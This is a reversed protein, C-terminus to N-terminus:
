PPEGRRGARVLRRAQGGLRGRVAPRAGPRPGGPRPGTRVGLQDLTAPQWGVADLVPITAAPRAPPRTDDRASAPRRTALGLAVLVDDASCVPARGEALLGNTGASAAAASRAPSPWSTSAAGTPRTSPTCRAARATRSSSSSWTPSRPSSATAPRSAGRAGAPRGLPAERCCSATRRWRGGCSASAARTSSTSAAASSASRRAAAGGRVACHAGTPPATSARPWARCSRWAPRPWTAGSSAPSAPARRRAAAPAWSRWGPGTSSTPRRGPPVAVAPRSSTPPSPPPYGAVGIVAVGIGEAVIAAVRCRVDTAAAQGLALSGLLTDPRPGLAPVVDADRWAAGGCIREGPSRPAARGPSCPLWAPRAWARCAPSLPPSRRPPLGRLRRRRRRPHSRTGPGDRWGGTSASRIPGCRSRRARRARRGSPRRARRPRRHHAGGPPRRWAGGPSAGPACRRARGAPDAAPRAAGRRRPAVAPLAANACVGRRRAASARWRWGPPWRAHRSAPPRALLEAVDPRGVEVRLDFRDLLPGSLRRPTAPAPPVAPLPLRRTRGGEGCPCPNM